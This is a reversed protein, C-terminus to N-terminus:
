QAKNCGGPPNTRSSQSLLTGPRAPQHWGLVGLEAGAKWRYFTQESIGAKRILEVVPVRVEAQNM